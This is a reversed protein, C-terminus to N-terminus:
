FLWTKDAYKEMRPSPTTRRNFLGGQIAVADNFMFYGCLAQGYSCERSKLEKGNHEFIIRWM